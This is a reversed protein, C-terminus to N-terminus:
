EPPEPGVRPVAAQTVVLGVLGLLGGVRSVLDLATPAANEMADERLHPYSAALQILSADGYARGHPGYVVTRRARVAELIAGASADTAFVYTRCMGMRGLGHFDSSGIAAFQGRAAFQELERQAAENGYILPHCVETGDLRAMAGADFGPWFPPTPHAVIALGGQRHVADVQEAVSQRSDVVEEIGVAIVHHGPAIIEQGPIVTPGGVLRSFWRGAKADSVQNHGTIAIADLGQRQAEFVLGWPTLTGDSWTSSHIHFDAALVRYGGLTLPERRKPRDAITGAVIAACLLVLSLIRRLSV